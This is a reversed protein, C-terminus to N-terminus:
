AVDTTRLIMRHLQAVGPTDNASKEYHWLAKLPGTAADLKFDTAGLVLVGDVYMQIDTLDRADIWVEVPTGAVIDITTDTAAVETTGDDSEADLNTDAGSDQHFFCAETIADADSAHTANALGVNLDAADADAVTVIEWISEFIMKQTIPVSAKSLIDAKEAEANTSFSFQATGGSWELKTTGTTQVIVTDAAGGHMDWVTRQEVNIDVVCTTAASTADGVFVGAYVNDASETQLPTITSASKDFYARGGDLCVVDATKAMTFQGATFMAAPDGSAEGAVAAAVGIRGDPLQIVEGASLAEPATIDMANANADKSLTAEAM